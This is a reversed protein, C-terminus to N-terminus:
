QGTESFTLSCYCNVLKITCDNSSLGNVHRTICEAESLIAVRYEVTYHSTTIPLPAGM